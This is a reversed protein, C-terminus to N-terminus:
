YSTSNIWLRPNEFRFAFKTQIFLFLRTSPTYSNLNRYLFNGQSVDIQKAYQLKRSYNNSLHLKPAEDSTFPPRGTILEYLVIGLSWWDCQAGYSKM